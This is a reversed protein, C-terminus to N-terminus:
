FNYSLGVLVNLGRNPYYLYREYKASFLNNFSLFASFRDFFSYDAKINLDFIPDLTQKRDSVFNKATIGGLYYIETSLLLKKNFSYNGLLTTTFTPRHWAEELNRPSYNFFDVKASLRFKEAYNYALEGSFNLVNTFDREYLITFTSTDAVSNNYFYLNKYRGYGLRTAFSLGGGLDGKLGGYFDLVKNTHALPVNPELWPNENVFQRLTTRQVDGELGAFVTFKELLTYEALLAPYVHLDKGEKLTDNEYVINVGGTLKLADMQYQVAPKLRFLNRNVSSSDKRRTLFLDTNLLAKLNDDVEYSAKVQAGIEFESANYNDTLNFLNLDLRYDLPSDQNNNTFNTKIAITNFVQKISDRDVELGPNYGYFYYKERNYELAVGATLQETFYKGYLNLFNESTASNAKDVSGRGSSLHRFRAGFSYDQNRTSNFFGDLFATAYNGAGVKVYNGTLPKQKDAPLQLVRFRPNLDPLKVNRDLFQYQQANQAPQPAPATIKEFNREAEPLEIERNKEIIVEANEIEGGQQAFVPLTALLFLAFLVSSRLIQHKHIMPMFLYQMEM